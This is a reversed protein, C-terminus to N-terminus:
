IGAKKRIFMEVEKSSPVRGTRKFQAYKYNNKFNSFGIVKHFKDIKETGYIMIGKDFMGGSIGLKKLGDFVSKRLSEITISLHIMVKVNPHASLSGDTDMLGRICAALNKENNSIYIPISCDKGYKIGVPFGADIMYKDVSKSYVVCRIVKEDKNQYIKPSIKFTRRILRPLYNNYYYYDLYKDGTISLSKLDSNICGDGLLIGYFEAFSTESKNPFRINKLKQKGHSIKQGWFPDIVEFKYDKNTKSLILLKKFFSLPLTRNEVLWDHKVTQPNVGIKNAIEDWTFNNKKKISNMIEKLDNKDIIVRKEIFRGDVTRKM